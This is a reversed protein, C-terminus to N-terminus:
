WISTIEGPKVESPRQFMKVFGYGAFFCIIVLM